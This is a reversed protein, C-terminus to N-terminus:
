ADKRIVNLYNKIDGNNMAFRTVLEPHKMEVITFIAEETGIVGNALSKEVYDFYKNNFNVIQNYTGGFLTARCVYEPRRGIMETMKNIDYGHIETDANYKYSTLFFNDKTIKLFNYTGIPETVNFSNTFGADIWYFRKSGFPNQGAITQLYDNKILTLPIYHPLVLVSGDIWQAQTKFSDTSIINQVRSYYRHDKLTELDIERVQIQNNSTAISLERRRRVIYDHYKKDAYVVLPNRVSLLKDLGKIYHEEFNRDHRNLDLAMTVLTVDAPYEYISDMERFNILPARRNALLEKPYFDYPVKTDDPRQGAMKSCDDGLHRAYEGNLYVGKFGLATFKRDINWENHWKEVRGLMILDDRRRLNPSGCWAHWAVHHDTIKWPKKWFFTDDILKKEYSDIGQWEFTRWSIDVVGVERYKQLIQKSKNLYGPQTLEWDDELYFIYDSDCYSVMFDMAWWQSRNRPFCIVDCTDGFKEVLSEFIGPKASDDVIVMKTVYDRTSYFSELTKQLVDLRDCSLVFTTTDSDPQDVTHFKVKSM